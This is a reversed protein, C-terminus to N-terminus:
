VNHNTNTILVKKLRKTLTEHVNKGERMWNSGARYHLFVDDYIECFFKGNKNRSDNSLFDILEKNHQINEPIKTQDWSCSSL